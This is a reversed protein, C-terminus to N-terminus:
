KHALKWVSWARVVSYLLFAIAPNAGLKLLASLYINDACERSELYPALPVSGLQLNSGGKLAADHIIAAYPYPSNLDNLWPDLWRPCTTLDTTFDDGAKVYLVTNNFRLVLDTDLSYPTKWNANKGRKVLRPKILNKM